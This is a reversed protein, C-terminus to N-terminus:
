ATKWGLSAIYDNVNGENETQWWSQLRSWANAHFTVSYKDQNSTGAYNVLHNIVSLMSEVTLLPSDAFSITRGIEGGFTINKLKSCNQFMNSFSRTSTVILKRITVMATAGQFLYYAQTLNSSTLDIEVKTDTINTNQYYMQNCAYKPKIPYKPNYNKDNWRAGAFAMTYESAEGNGQYSDWFDDQGAKKGAEFVENIKTPLEGSKVQNINSGTKEQFADCAAEYDALPMVAYKESM